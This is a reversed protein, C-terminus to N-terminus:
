VFPNFAAGGQRLAVVYRKQGGSRVITGGAQVGPAVSVQRETLNSFPLAACVGRTTWFLTRVGDNAWHQGAVVGYPALETLKEGNFAFIRQDTGVLLADEHPALMLVRGPVLFFNSNMNFLHYGLPETFWIATQKDAPMYQAAYIVGKWHQVVDTGTPLPDLFANTLDRGLADPSANFTEATRTTNFALQYVESGAPAIYVNTSGTIQPINSIRLGQGETLTIEGADSTGTERGDPLVFSCRAQYTGAPLSGTVASVSPASPVPWGWPLVANDPMIVGSDVGNNFYVQDNVETWFIPQNSLLYYLAVGEFTQLVGAKVVYCRQFDITTYIATFSGAQVQSYGERSSLAGTESINVNDAQVLWDLGLRLRDTVNNLGKFAKIDM